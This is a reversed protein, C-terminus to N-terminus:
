AGGAADSRWGARRGNQVQRPLEVDIRQQPLHGPVRFPCGRDDGARWGVMEAWRRMHFTFVKHDASVEFDKLVNGVLGQVGIGPASLLPENLMIFVDPWWNAISHAMRLAGTADRLGSPSTLRASCSAEAWGRVARGAIARGVAPLVGLQVQEALVPAESYHRIGLPRGGPQQTAANAPYVMLSLGVALLWVVYRRAKM